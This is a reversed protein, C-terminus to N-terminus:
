VRLVNKLGGGGEFFERLEGCVGERGRPGERLGEGKRPNDFFFFRDGLGGPGESEGKGRGSCFFLFFGFSSLKLSM